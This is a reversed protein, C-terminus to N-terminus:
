RGERGGEWAGERGEGCTLLRSCSSHSSITARWCIRSSSSFAVLSPPLTPLRRLSGLRLDRGGGPINIGERGGEREGEWGRM